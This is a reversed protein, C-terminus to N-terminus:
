GKTNELCILGVLFQRKKLKGQFCGKVNMCVTEIPSLKSSIGFVIEQFFFFLYIFLFFLFFFLFLFCVFIYAM